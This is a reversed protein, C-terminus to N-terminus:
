SISKEYKSIQTQLNKILTSLEVNKYHIARLNQVISLTTESNSPTETSRPSPESVLEIVPESYRPYHPTLPLTAANLIPPYHEIEINVCLNLCLIAEPMIKRDKLKDKLYVDFAQLTEDDILTLDNVGSHVKSTPNFIMLSYPRIIGFQKSLSQTIQSTSLLFLVDKSYKKFLIGVASLYAEMYKQYLQEEKVHLYCLVVTYEQGILKDKNSDDLEIINDDSYSVSSTNLDKSYWRNESTKRTL